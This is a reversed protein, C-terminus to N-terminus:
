RWIDAISATSPEEAPMAMRLVASSGLCKRIVSGFGSRTRCIQWRPSSTPPCTPPARHSRPSAQPTCVTQVAVKTGPRSLVRDHAQSNRDHHGLWSFRRSNSAPGRFLVVARNATWWLHGPHDAIEISMEPCCALHIRAGLMPWASTATLAGARRRCSRIQGLAARRQM